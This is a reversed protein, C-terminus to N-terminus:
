FDVDGAFTNLFKIEDPREFSGTQLEIPM